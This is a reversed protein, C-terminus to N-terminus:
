FIEADPALRQTLIDRRRGVNRRRDTHRYGHHETQRHRQTWGRHKDIRRDTVRLRDLDRHKDIDRRRGMDRRRDLIEANTQPEADLRGTTLMYELGLQFKLSRVALTVLFMHRCYGSYDFYWTVIVKRIDALTSNQGAVRVSGILPTEAESEL